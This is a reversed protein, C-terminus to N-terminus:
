TLRRLSVQLDYECLSVDPIRTCALKLDEPVEKAVIVGRVKKGKALERDVWGMYYLIQGLTKSRGESVKLELVLFNGHVDRALIDIRGNDVPYEVGAGRDDTYLSLGTEVLNLNKALYDRLDTEFAFESGAIDPEERESEIRESGRGEMFRDYEDAYRLYRRITVKGRENM